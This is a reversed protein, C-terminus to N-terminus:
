GARPSVSCRILRNKEDKMRLKSIYDCFKRVLEEDKALIPTRLVYEVFTNSEKVTGRCQVILHLLSEYNIKGANAKGFIKLFMYLLLNYLTARLYGMFLDPNTKRVKVQPHNLISAREKKLKKLAKLGKKRERPLAIIHNVKKEHNEIQRKIVPLKSSKPNDMSEAGNCTNVNFDFHNVLLKIVNECNPWRKKYELLSDFYSDCAYTSALVYLENDRQLIEFVRPDTEAKVKDRWVGVYLNTDVEECDFDELGQYQNCRLFTLIGIGKEELKKNFELGCGERDIVFLELRDGLLLKLKDSLLLVEETFPLDVRVTRISIVFGKEITSLLYKTGPMIRELVSMKGCVSPQATYYPKSHGDIYIIPKKKGTIIKLLNIWFNLFSSELEVPLNTLGEFQKLHAQTQSLSMQTHPINLKEAEHSNECAPNLVMAILTNIMKHISNTNTLNTNSLEQAAHIDQAFMDLLRFHKFLSQLIPIGINSCSQIIVLNCKLIHLTRKGQYDKTIRGKPASFGERYRIQNIWSITIEIGYLRIISLIDCSRIEPVTQAMTFILQIIDQSLKYFRTYKHNYYQKM